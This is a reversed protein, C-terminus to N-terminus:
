EFLASWQTTVKIGDVEYAGGRSNDRIVTVAKVFYNDGTAAINVTADATGPETAPINGEEFVYVSATNNNNGQDTDPIHHKMVVLYTKGTEPTIDTLTFAGEYMIGIKPNGGNYNVQVASLFKTAGNPLWDVLMVTRNFGGGTDDPLEEVKLLFSTYYSGAFEATQQLSINNAYVNSNSGPDDMDLLVANGTGSGPYGPYTLGNGAVPIGTNGTRVKLWGDLTGNQAGDGTRDTSPILQGASYEFHEEFLRTEAPIASAEATVSEIHDSEAYTHTIEGTKVGTDGTPEFRVFIRIDGTDFDSAPITLTEAYMGDETRSVRFDQTGTVTVDSTLGNGTLTYSMPASVTGLPTAGLSLSTPSVIVSEEPVKGTGTLAVEVAEELDDSNVTIGGTANGGEEPDFSVYVTKGNMVAAATTSLMHGFTGNEKAAISFPGTVEITADAELDSGSFVLSQIDSKQHVVVHGFDLSTEGPTLMPVGPIKAIGSVPISDIHERDPSTHIVTTEFLGEDSGSPTFRIFVPIAENGFSDPSLSLTNSFTGDASLSLSFPTETATTIDGTLDEAAITYSRISSTKDIEVEGFNIDTGTIKIVPNHPIANDDSCSIGTTVIVAAVWIKTYLTKM